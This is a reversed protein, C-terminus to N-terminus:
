IERESESLRALKEKLSEPTAAAKGTRRAEMMRQLVKLNGYLLWDMSVGHNQCYDSLQSTWTRGIKPCRRLQWEIALWLARRNMQEYKSAGAADLRGEPSNRWDRLQKAFARNPKRAKRAM